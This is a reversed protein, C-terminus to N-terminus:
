LARFNRFAAQAQGRKVGYAVLMQVRDGNFAVTGQSLIQPSFRAQSALGHRARCM